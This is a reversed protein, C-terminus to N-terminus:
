CHSVPDLESVHYLISMKYFVSTNLFKYIWFNAKINKYKLFNMSINIINYACGNRNVDDLLLTSSSVSNAVVSSVTGSKVFVCLDFEFSLAARPTPNLRRITKTARIDTTM